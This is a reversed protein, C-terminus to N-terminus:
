PCLNTSSAAPYALKPQVALAGLQSLATRHSRSARVLRMARRTKYALVRDLRNHQLQLPGPRVVAPFTVRAVDADEDGAVACAHALADLLLDPRAEAAADAHRRVIRRVCQVVRRGQTACHVLRDPPTHDVPTLTPGVSTKAARTAESASRRDRTSAGGAM